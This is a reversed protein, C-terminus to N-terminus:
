LSITEALHVYDQYVCTSEVWTRFSTYAIQKGYFMDKKLNEWKNSTIFSIKKKKAEPVTYQWVLVYSPVSKWFKIKDNKKKKKKKKKSKDILDM